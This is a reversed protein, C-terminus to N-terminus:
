KGPVEPVNWENPEPVKAKKKLFYSSYFFIFHSAFIISLIIKM